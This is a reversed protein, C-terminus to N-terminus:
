DANFMVGDAGFLGVKVPHFLEDEEVVLAMGGFHARGFHFGIEGVQSDFTLHRGTGLIHGHLRDEEEVPLQQADFQGADVGQAGFLIFPQGDDQGFGFDM